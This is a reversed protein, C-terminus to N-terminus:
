CATDHDLILCVQCSDWRDPARSLQQVEFHEEGDAQVNKIIRCKETREYDAM